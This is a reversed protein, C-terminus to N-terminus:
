RRLVTLIGDVLLRLEPGLLAVVESSGNRAPNLYKGLEESEFIPPNTAPPTKQRASSNEMVKPHSKLEPEPSKQETSPARDLEVPEHIVQQPVGSEMPSAKDLDMPEGIEQEAPPALQQGQGIAESIRERTRKGDGGSRRRGAGNKENLWHERHEKINLFGQDDFFQHKLDKLDANSNKQWMKDLKKTTKEPVMWDELEKKERAEKEEREKKERAEKEERENKRAPRRKRANGRWTQDRISTKYLDGQSPKANKPLKEPFPASDRAHRITSRAPLKASSIKRAARADDPSSYKTPAM